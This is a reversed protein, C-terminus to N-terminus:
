LFADLSSNGEVKRAKKTNGKEQQPPNRANNEDRSPKKKGPSTVFSDKKAPCTEIEMVHDLHNQVQLLVGVDDAYVYEDLNNVQLINFEQHIGELEFYVELLKRGLETIAYGGAQEGGTIFWVKKLEALHYGLNATSIKKNIGKLARAVRTFSQPGHERARKLFKLISIRIPHRLGVMIYDIRVQYGSEGQKNGPKTKVLRGKPKKTILM